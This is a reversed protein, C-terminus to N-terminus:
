PLSRREGPRHTGQPSIARMLEAAMAPADNLCVFGRHYKLRRVPRHVKRRRRRVVLEGTSPDVRSQRRWVTVERVARVVEVRRTGPNWRYSRESLKRLTRSVALLEDRGELPVAARAVGIGWYGWFRGPTKGEGRWEGPVQHQYEKGGGAGGHKSFYVALRKPDTCRLGHKVSVNTGAAEHRAREGLDPHKVIDAWTVALWRTFGLGDGTADRWRPRSGESGALTWLILEAEYATRRGAGAKGVPVAVPGIHVHPAGRDQFELKWAGRLPESWASEWRQRFMRLHRKVAAGDPAVPLWDAPYTVTLMAPLGVAQELYSWDLSALRLVMKSRSKRTWSTVAGRKVERRSGYHPEIARRNAWYALELDNHAVQLVGPAVVLSWGAQDPDAIGRGFSLVEQEIRAVGAFVAPYVDALPGSATRAPSV